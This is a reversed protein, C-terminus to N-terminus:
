FRRPELAQKPNSAFQEFSLDSYTVQTDYNLSIFDFRSVGYCQSLMRTLKIHHKAEHQLADDLAAAILLILYSRLTRVRSGNTFLGSVDFGKFKSERHGLPFRLIPLM